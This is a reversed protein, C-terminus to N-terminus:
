VGGADLARSLNGTKAEVVLSHPANAYVRSVARDGHVEDVVEIGARYAGTEVPASARAAAAMKEASRRVAAAVAPTKLLGDLDSALVIKVKPPM